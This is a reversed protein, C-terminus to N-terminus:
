FSFIKSCDGGGFGVIQGKMCLNTASLYNLSFRTYTKSGGGGGFFFVCLCVVVVFLWGIWDV